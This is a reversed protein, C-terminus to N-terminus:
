QIGLHPLLGGIAPPQGKSLKAISLVSTKGSNCAAAAFPYSLVTTRISDRILSSISFFSILSSISTTDSAEKREEEMSPAIIALRTDFVMM